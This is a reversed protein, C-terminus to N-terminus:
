LPASFAAAAMATTEGASPDSAVSWPSSDPVTPLEQSYAFEFASHNIRGHLLPLCVPSGARGPM